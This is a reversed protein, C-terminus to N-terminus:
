NLCEWLKCNPDYHINLQDCEDCKYDKKFEQPNNIFINKYWPLKEINNCKIGEKTCSDEICYCEGNNCIEKYWTTCWDKLKWPQHLYYLISWWLVILITIIIIIWRKKPM